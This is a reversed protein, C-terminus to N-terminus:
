KFLRELGPYPKLAFLEFHILKNNVFPLTELIHNADETDQCELLIVACDQDQRFYIERIKNEKILQWVQRAEAEAYKTYNEASAGPLEKELALIKM